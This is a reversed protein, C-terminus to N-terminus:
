RLHDCNTVVKTKETATLPFMFDAPFRERNRRAQENLRKTTTGYMTALNADLLVRQDRITLISSEIRDVLIVGTTENAARPRASKKM